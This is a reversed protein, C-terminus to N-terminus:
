NVHLFEQSNMIAWSLDQLFERDYTTETKIFKSKYYESERQSPHRGLLSLYVHDITKLMSKTEDFKKKISSENGGFDWTLKGTVRGNMLTLVQEITIENFDDAIDVRPGSGFVSLFNHYPAPHEVEAASSVESPNDKPFRINGIGKLDIQSGLQLNPLRRERLNGITLTQSAKLLSNLLQDADLRQAYFFKMPQTDKSQGPASRIYAKSTVIYLILDKIRYGNNKFYTDLHNLIEEGQLKTDENWDDLPTFFSWGMLHTWIRNIIVKRFRSNEPHTLWEAFVKRKDDGFKFKAEKGDPFKARVLDGGPADDSHPFRLGIKPEYFITAHELEHKKQFEKRQDASWQNWNENSWENNRDKLKKADETPLHEEIERPVYVIEEGKYRDKDWSGDRYYMQSFFSALAYYDRRTYDQIYPHDHCRACAVRQAYFLRGVYEAIQLPDAADRLYFGVAPNNALNGDATLMEKVLLHYPKNEHLSNAIYRFFAGTQLKRGKARDRFLATFKIAWYEAFNAEKLYRVAYTQIKDNSKDKEFDTVEELSPLTGKTHLALRRLAISDTVPQSIASYKKYIQDIPHESVKADTPSQYIYM